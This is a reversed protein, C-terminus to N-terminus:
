LAEVQVFGSTTSWIKSYDLRLGAESMRIGHILM